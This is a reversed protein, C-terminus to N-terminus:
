LLQRTPIVLSFLQCLTTPISSMGGDGAETGSCTRRFAATGEIVQVCAQEITIVVGCFVQADRGVSLARVRLSLNMRRCVNRGCGGEFDNAATMVITASTVLCIASSPM